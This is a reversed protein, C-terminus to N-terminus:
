DAAKQRINFNKMVWDCQSHMDAKSRLGYELRVGGRVGSVYGLRYDEWWMM